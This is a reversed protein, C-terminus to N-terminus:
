EEEGERTRPVRRVKAKSPRGKQSPGLSLADPAPAPADKKGGKAERAAREKAAAKEKAEQRTVADRTNPTAAMRARESAAAKPNIVDRLELSGM